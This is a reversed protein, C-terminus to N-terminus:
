QRMGTGARVPAQTPRTERINAFLLRKCLLCRTKRHHNKERAVAKCAGGDSCSGQRLGPRTGRVRACRALPHSVSVANAAVKLKPVSDRDMHFFYLPSRYAGQIKDNM